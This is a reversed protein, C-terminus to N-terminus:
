IVYYLDGVVDDLRLGGLAKYGRSDDGCCVCGSGSSTIQFACEETAEWSCVDTLIVGDSCGLNHGGVGGERLGVGGERLGVGGERVGVGSERVGVGAEGLGVGGDGLAEGAKGYGGVVGGSGSGDGVVGGDEGFRDM